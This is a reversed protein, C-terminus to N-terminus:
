PPRRPQQDALADPLPAIHPVPDDDHRRPRAADTRVDQGAQRPGAALHVDFGQRAEVLQAVGDALREAVLHIDHRRVRSMLSVAPRMVILSVPPRRSTLLMSAPSRGFRTRKAESATVRATHSHYPRLTSGTKM